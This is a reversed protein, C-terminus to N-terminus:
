SIIFITQSSLLRYCDMDDVFTLYKVDKQLRFLIFIHVVYFLLEINFLTFIFIFLIKFRVLWRSMLYFYWHVHCVLLYSRIIFSSLQENQPLTILIFMQRVLDYLKFMLIWKWKGEFCVFNQSEHNYTRNPFKQGLFPSWLSFAFLSIFFLLM